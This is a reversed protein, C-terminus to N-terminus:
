PLRRTQAGTRDGRRCTWRLRQWLCLYVAVIICNFGWRGPYEALGPFEEPLGRYSIYRERWQGWRLNFAVLAFSAALLLTQIMVPYLRRPDRLVRYLAQACLGATLAATLGFTRWERLLCTALLLWSMAGLTFAGCSLCIAAPSRRAADPEGRSPDAYTGDEIQIRRRRRLAYVIFAAMPVIGGASYGYIIWRAAGPSLAGEHAVRDALMGLGVLFAVAWVVCAWTTWFAFRRERSSFATAVNAMAGHVLALLYLLPWLLVSVLGGPLAGKLVGPIKVLSTGAAGAAATEHPSSSLATAVAAVLAKGPRTARLADEVFAAAEEKLLKRGRSLRQKVAQKSAGLMEAVIQTSKGERYYLIMPERYTDPIRELARWLITEREKGIAHDRPNPAAAEPEAVADLPAAGAAVDRARRRMTNRALNRAIGCLWARLRSRNRLAPLQKWAALFTEQSLDESLALNGTASYTIACILSQYREVIVGFAESDGALSAELLDLDSTAAHAM